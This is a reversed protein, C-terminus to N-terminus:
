CNSEVFELYDGVTEWKESDEGSESLDVDFVKETEMELEVIDLEDMGLDDFLNSEPKLDEIEYGSVEALISLALEKKEQNAM